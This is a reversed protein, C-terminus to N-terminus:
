ATLVRESRGGKHEPHGVCKRPKQRGFGPREYPQRREPRRFLAPGEEFAEEVEGEGQLFSM